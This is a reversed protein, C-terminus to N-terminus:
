KQKQWTWIYRLADTLEVPKIIELNFKRTYDAIHKMEWACFNEKPTVVQELGPNVKMYIRGGPKCWSVVKEIQKEILDFSFLNTSGYAIVVDFSEAPADYDMLDIVVDAAPNYKDIGILNKVKGKFPHYGCGVDLVTENDSIEDVVTQFMKLASPDGDMYKPRWYGDKTPDSSNTFYTEIYDNM